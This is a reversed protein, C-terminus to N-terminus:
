IPSLFLVQNGRSIPCIIGLGWFITGLLKKIVFRFIYNKCIRTDLSCYKSVCLLETNSYIKGLNVVFM